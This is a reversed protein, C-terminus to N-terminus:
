QELEPLRLNPVFPYEQLQQRSKVSSSQTDGRLSFMKKYAPYGYPGSGNPRYVIARQRNKLMFSETIYAIAEKDTNTDEIRQGQKKYFPSTTLGEATDFVLLNIRAVESYDDKDITKFYYGQYSKGEYSLEREELFEVTHQQADYDGNEFLLSEALQCASKYARPFVSLKKVEKLKNFLMARTNIDAALSKILAEPIPGGSKAELVAYTTKITRSKLLQLRNFFLKVDKEERFPYLLEAYDALVSNDANQATAYYPLEKAGTENGLERKLQIKADNLIQKRYKKYSKAKILGKAKLKALISFIPSKYEEIASYDLIEPYLKKALVLSDRYPKFVRSIEYTNSVLPLDQSLLELVLKVSNEDAKCSV